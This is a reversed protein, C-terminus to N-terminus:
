TVERWHSLDWGTLSELAQVDSELMHVIAEQMANSLRPKTAVREALAASEKSGLRRELLPAVKRLVRRAVGPRDGRHHRVQGVSRNTHIAEAEPLADPDLRFHEALRRLTTPQDSTANKFDLLLVADRGFRRVFPEIQAHYRTADLILPSERVEDEISRETYGRSLAHLYASVVRDIPRRVVYALRLDANYNYLDDWIRLNRHPYFTYSTSAELYTAEPRQEFRAHYASLDSRWDRTTSFFHPEKDDPGVAQPHRLLGAFLSTTACKQAGLIM